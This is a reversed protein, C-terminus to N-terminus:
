SELAAERLLDWTRDLHRAETNLHGIAVRLALKGGLRTHSLFAEGSANVRDLIAQNVRDAESDDAGQDAGQDAEQSEESRPIFRFVVTSFPVPALREWGAEADVQEAFGRALRIHERIRERIGEAGFYRLVFWLKIARFRRGLAVGYDMLHHAEDMEPTRLYEPTLSFAQRLEERHRTYLVSCDVPTFLWKHPNVVISDAEEWGQFHPRMEPLVAAAGGYAADVHLWLDFERAIEVVEAVPDVSTTSTTGVTAVVALPHVGAELDERIAARLREPDMRFADDTEVNRVGKHGFGLAIAAKEISSHAQESTYIRGRPLGSLGEERASPWARHRAAALAVLSSVSATDQIVGFLGAPLGLLDRLWDLVHAELETGAPSTRWVMANVNVTAALMEGLIGPGSGTVSFYALFAPHNWHTLAPVVKEEFDRLLDGPSEGVEPARPPLSSRFEGPRVRSLVPLTEVRALYDAMWDVAVHAWERFEEPPMDGTDPHLPPDPAM